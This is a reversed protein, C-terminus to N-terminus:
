YEFTKGIDNGDDIEVLYRQIATADMISLVGDTNIDGRILMREDGELVEILYLQISTADLITVKGSNDVDGLIYLEKPTILVFEIGNDQAYIHAESNEYCYIVVNASNYFANKDISTVSEPILIKALGDCYSFANNEITTVTDPLVVETLADCNTFSARSVVELKTGELNISSLSTCNSFAGDDIVTLNEKLVVTKLSSCNAFAYSQIATLNSSFTIKELTTNSNFANSGVSTIPLMNHYYATSLIASAGKYEDIEFETDNNIKEYVWDGVPYVTKASVSLCAVASLM